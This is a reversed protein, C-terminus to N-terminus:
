EGGMFDFQSAINQYRNGSDRWYGTEEDRLRNGSDGKDMAGKLKDKRLGLNANFGQLNANANNANVTNRVGTNFRDIGMKADRNSMMRQEDASAIDGALRGSSNIASLARMQADSANQANTMANTNFAGQNAAGRAAM